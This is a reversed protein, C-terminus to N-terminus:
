NPAVAKDTESHGARGAVNSRREQRATAAQTETLFPAGPEEQVRLRSRAVSRVTIADTTSDDLFARLRAPNLTSADGAEADDRTLSARHETRNAANLDSLDVTTNLAPNLGLLAWAGIAPVSGYTPDWNFAAHVADAFHQITLNHGDHPGHGLASISVTLLSTLIRM